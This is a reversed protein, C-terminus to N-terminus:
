ACPGTTDSSAIRGRRPEISPCATERRVVRSVGAMHRLVLTGLAHAREVEIHIAPLLLPFLLLLLFLGLSLLPFSRGLFIQHAILTQCIVVDSIRM